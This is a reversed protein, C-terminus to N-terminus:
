SLVVEAVNSYKSNMGDNVQVRPEMVTISDDELFYVINVIRVRFKEEPNDYVPQKFFATFNLCRKDYHVWHPIVTPLAPAKVRGYTLSPDYSLFFISIIRM